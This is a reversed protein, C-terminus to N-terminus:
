ISISYRGSFVKSLLSLAATPKQLSAETTSCVSESRLTDTTVVPLPSGAEPSWVCSLLAAFPHCRNPRGIGEEWGALIQTGNGPVRNKLPPRPFHSHNRYRCREAHSASASPSAPRSGPSSASVSAAHSTARCVPGLIQPTCGLSGFRFM